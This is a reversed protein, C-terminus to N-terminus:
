FARPPMLAPPVRCPPLDKVLDDMYRTVRVGGREPVDYHSDGNGDAGSRRAAVLAEWDALWAEAPRDKGLTEPGLGRIRAVMADVAENQAEPREAAAAVRAQMEECAAGAEERVPRSDLAEAYDRKEFLFPGVSWALGILLSGILLVMPVARRAAM